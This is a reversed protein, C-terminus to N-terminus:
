GWGQLGALYTPFRARFQDDTEADIGGAFPSANVVTDIGYLPTFFWIITNALVNGATGATLSAAPVTVSATNIPLVYGGFSASYAPNTSDTTVVFQLGGPGTTVVTGILVVAQQTALYRSFTVQGTASVLGLRFFDFDAYFSDLDTGNSTALGLLARLIRSAEGQLWLAVGAVSQSFALTISGVSTDILAKANAVMATVQSQVLNSFGQWTVAM